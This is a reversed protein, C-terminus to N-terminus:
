RYLRKVTRIFILKSVSKEVSTTNHNSTMYIISSSFILDYYFLPTVCELKMGVESLLMYSVRRYAIQMIIIYLKRTTCGSNFLFVLFVAVSLGLGGIEYYRTRCLLKRSPSLTCIVYMKEEPCIAIM